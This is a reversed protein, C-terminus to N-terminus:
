QIPARSISSCLSNLRVSEQAGPAGLSSFYPFPSPEFRPAPYGGWTQVNEGRALITRTGNQGIITVIVRVGGSRTDGASVLSVRYLGPADPRYDLTNQASAIKLQRAFAERDVLPQLAVARRLDVQIEGFQAIALGNAANAPLARAPSPAVCSLAVASLAVASLAVYRFPTKM